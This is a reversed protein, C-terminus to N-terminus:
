LHNIIDLKEAVTAENKEGDKSCKMSLRAFVKLGTISNVTAQAPPNSGFYIFYAPSITIFSM